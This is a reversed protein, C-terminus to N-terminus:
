KIQYNLKILLVIHCTTVNMRSMSKRTTWGWLKPAVARSLHLTTSPFCEQGSCGLARKTLLLNYQNYLAYKQIKTFTVTSHFFSSSIM